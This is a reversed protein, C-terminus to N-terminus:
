RGPALIGQPAKAIRPHAASISRVAAPVSQPMLDHLWFASIWFFVTLYYGVATMWDEFFAHVMGALLMMALPIAVHYPNRTRWMWILVQVIMKGMLYFLILFPIIGLLGVYEVLALYSNGHERNTGERTYLGGASPDMSLNSHEAWRGLDSTGFGSGFWPHERIVANTEEWPTKRSGLVGLEKDKGKYLLNDITASVSEEFHSPNWLAALALLLTLVFAGQILLKQRHVSVCLAVVAVGSALLAARSLASYLLLVTLVVAIFRRYRDSRSESILWGWLLFPLIVVGMVAGLSNPNGFLGYGLGFYAIATVFVTIECATLLGRIFHIERGLTALRAGTAGYLFLLFFSFAKLLATMPQTSVMASILGSFVCFFALLHLASYTHRRERMWMVFGALAAVGLLFWRATTPIGNLPLSMGAWLFTLMLLPFFVTEFHWLSALVIEIGILGGLYTPSRFYYLHGRLFLFVALALIAGIVIKVGRPVDKLLEAFMAAWLVVYYVPGGLRM